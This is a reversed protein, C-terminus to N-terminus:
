LRVSRSLAKWSRSIDDDDGVKAAGAVNGKRGASLGMKTIRAGLVPLKMLKRFVKRFGLGRHRRGQRVQTHLLPPTPLPPAQLQARALPPESLSRGLIAQNLQVEFSMREFRDMLTSEDDDGFRRLVADMEDDMRRGMVTM